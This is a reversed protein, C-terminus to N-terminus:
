MTRYGQAQTLTVLRAHVRDFEFEAAVESRLLFEVGGVGVKGGRHFREGFLV